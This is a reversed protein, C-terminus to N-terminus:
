PTYYQIILTPRASLTPHNGSIFTMFDASNDDNDGVAFYLRFQTTGTKNIQSLMSGSSWVRSYWNSIPTNPIVGVNSATAAAQFDSNALSALGGFTTSSVDVRLTGLLTFPDTGTLSQKRIKLTVKTVTADAPLITTNFSLIGRYQKDGVQDGLRFTTASANSSGGVSSTETSELVWGDETGTSRITATALKQEYPGTDCHAGYGTRSVARQDINNVTNVDQCVVDDGADVAVSNAGLAHSATAGGNLALPGLNLQVSTRQTALDCSGDTDINHSDASFTVGGDMVCQAGTNDAVITNYLAFPGNGSTDKMYFGNTTNNVIASNYIRLDDGTAFVGGGQPSTNGSITSNSIASINAFGGIHYIAGGSLDAHNATFTSLFINVQDKSYIAGGSLSTSNADFTTQSITVGQSGNASIAGGEQGATNGSFTSLSVNLSGNAPFTFDDLYVAGGRNVSVNNSIVSNIIAVGGLNYIGGGDGTAKNSDLTVNDLTVFSSANAFIGSGATNLGGSCAGACNGHRITMDKLTNSTATAAFYFMRYTAPTCNTAQTVSDVLTVPNCTSSQIITHGAGNGDITLQGGIYLESALTITYDADFTITEASSDGAPCDIYTGVGNMANYIAERLDCTANADLTILSSDANSNVLISIAHAPQVGAMSVVLVGLVLAALFKRFWIKM